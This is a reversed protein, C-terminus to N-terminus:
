RGGLRHDRAELPLAKRRVQHRRLFAEEVHADAAVGAPRLRLLRLLLEAPLLEIREHDLLLAIFAVGTGARRGSHARLPLGSAGPARASRTSRRSWASVVTHSSARQGFRPSHKERPVAVNM